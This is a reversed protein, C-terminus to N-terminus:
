NGALMAVVVSAVAEAATEGIADGWAAPFEEPVLPRPEYEGGRGTAFDPAWEVGTGVEVTGGEIRFVQDPHHSPGPLGTVGSIRDPELSERMDGSDVGVAYGQYGRAVLRRGTPTRAHGVKRAITSRANDPWQEGTPTYTGGPVGLADFRDCLLVLVCGGVPEAVMRTLRTDGGAVAAPLSELRDLVDPLPLRTKVEAISM